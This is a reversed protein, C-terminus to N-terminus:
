PSFSAFFYRKGEGRMFKYDIWHSSPGMLRIKICLLWSWSLHWQSIDNHAMYQSMRTPLVSSHTLWMEYTSRSVDWTILLINFNKIKGWSRCKGNWYEYYACNGWCYETWRPFFDCLVLFYVHKTRSAGFRSLSFWRSPWRTTFVNQSDNAMRTSWTTWLETAQKTIPTLEHRQLCTLSRHIFDNLHFREFPLM